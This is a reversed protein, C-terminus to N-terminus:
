IGYKRKVKNVGEFDKVLVLKVFPGIGYVKRVIGIEEECPYPHIFVSKQLQYFGGLRLLKRLTDRGLRYKEPIDFCVMRWNGDWRKPKTIKFDSISVIKLYGKGENTLMAKLTGDVGEKLDIIGKRNLYNIAQKVQQKKWRYRKLFERGLVNVLNPAVLGVGIVGGALLLGLIIRSIERGKIPRSM